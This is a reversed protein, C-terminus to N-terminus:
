ETMMIIVLRNLLVTLWNVLPNDNMCPFWKVYSYLDLIKRLILFRVSDPLECVPHCRTIWLYCWSNKVM